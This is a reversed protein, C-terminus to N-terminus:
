RYINPNFRCLKLYVYNFVFHSTEQSVYLNARSANACTMILPEDAVFNMESFDSTSFSIFIVQINPIRKMMESNFRPLVADIARFPLWRIFKGGTLANKGSAGLNLLGM